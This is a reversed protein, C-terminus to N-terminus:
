RFVRESVLVFRVRLSKDPIGALLLVSSRVGVGEMALIKRM